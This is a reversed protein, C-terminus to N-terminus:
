SSKIWQIGYKHNLAASLCVRPPKKESLDETTRIIKLNMTKGVILFAFLVTNMHLTIIRESIDAHAEGNRRNFWARAGSTEVHQTHHANGGCNRGVWHLQDSRETGISRCRSRVAAGIQLGAM